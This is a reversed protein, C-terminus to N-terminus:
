SADRAPAAERWAADPHSRPQSERWAEAYEGAARELADALSRGVRGELAGAVEVTDDAYVCYTSYCGSPYRHGKRAQLKTM